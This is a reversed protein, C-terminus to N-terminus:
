ARSKERNYLLMFAILIVGFIIQRQAPAVSLTTLFATLLTLFIAGTATGIYNGKGGSLATGGLVVAIVGPLIYQEGAAVFVTGTYGLLIFGAFGAFCGCTMYALVRTLPVSVGALRAAYDNSGVAYLNLGFRSYRLGAEIMLALAAWAFLIGPMGFLVPKTVFDALAPASAGSPQGQTMVVLLGTIVGASGLTMVLPPIRMLTVGLGNFIGVAGGAIIAVALGSLLGADQGSMANGALLACLSMISGVSLDIGEGGSLIVIGQGAAVLALIAAVNLQNVIQRGSAFGPAVLEGVVLLALCGILTALAPTRAIRSFIGAIINSNM